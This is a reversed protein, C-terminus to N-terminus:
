PKGTGENEEETQMLIPKLSCLRRLKESKFCPKYTEFVEPILRLLNNLHGLVKRFLTLRMNWSYDAYINSKSDVAKISYAYIQTLLREIDCLKMARKQFTEVVDLNALLDQM